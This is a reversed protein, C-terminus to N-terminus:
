LRVLVLYIGLMIYNIQASIFLFCDIFHFFSNYFEIGNVHSHIFDNLFIEIMHARAMPVTFTELADVKSKYKYENNNHKYAILIFSTTETTIKKEWLKVIETDIFM